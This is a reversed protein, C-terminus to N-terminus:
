NISAHGVICYANTFRYTIYLHSVLICELKQLFEVKSLITSNIQIQESNVNKKKFKILTWM